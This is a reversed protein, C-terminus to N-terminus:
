WVLKYVCNKYPMMRKNSINLHNEYKFLLESWILSIIWDFDNYITCEHQNKSVNVWFYLNKSMLPPKLTKLDGANQFLMASSVTCCIWDLGRKLYQTKNM